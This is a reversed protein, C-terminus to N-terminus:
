RHAVVRLGAALAAVDAAAPAATGPLAAALAGAAVASRLATGPDDGAATRALFVGLLTDGAGVDNAVRVQPAAVHLAGPADSWVAGAAGLSLLVGAAGLALVARAAAAAGDPGSPDVGTLERAEDASPKVLVGPVRVAAALAPGGADVAVVAGAALVTRALAAYTDAPLGPPLSGSLAVRDGPRVAEVLGATLRAVDASSAIPGRENVKLQRDRARPVVVVNTRTEGRIPTPRLAVGPLDSALAVLREGTAGGVLVHAVAAGGVAGVARAVNVGKGGADTRREDAVLVAGDRLEPVVYEVDLSPNLTVTHVTPADAGSTM